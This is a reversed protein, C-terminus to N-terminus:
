LSKTMRIHPCSEDMYVEGVEQYGLREYFGKVREQASLVIERAGKDAAAKELRGIVEAGLSRGRFAKMVAVRGITYIDNCEKTFVRGTAAPIGEDYIVIHTAYGDIDDFENVFGQEEVFVAQRILRADPNEALGETLKVTYKEM